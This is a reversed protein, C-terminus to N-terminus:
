RDSTMYRLAKKTIETAMRYRKVKSESKVMLLGRNTLRSLYTSVTSLNIPEKFEQEYTSQIERSSFWVLPFHREVIMRVKDLKSLESPKGEWGSSGGPIGGLLEVLDLIRLVKDRTIRGELTITYRNGDGDFVEVRMKQVPM